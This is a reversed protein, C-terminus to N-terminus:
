RKRQKARFMVNWITAAHTQGNLTGRRFQISYTDTGATTRTDQTAWMAVNQAGNTATTMTAIQGVVTTGRLVRILVNQTGAASFQFSTNFEAIFGAKRQFVLQAATQWTTDPLQLRNQRWVTVVSNVADGGLDPTDILVGPARVTASWSTWVTERPGVLRARAQYRQGPLIGQTLIHLGDAIDSTSGTWFVQQTQAERVQMLVSRVGPLNPLWTLRLAPRRDTSNGDKISIGRVAFGPVTQASPEVPEVSPADDALEDGVTWSYDAPDVERIDLATSLSKTDITVTGIEFQKTSYGNRASTWEIVDLPKLVIGEPPLVITHRRHRKADRMWARTLQQVQKSNTVAALALNAVLEQGDAAIADEDRRPTAEVVSWLKSPNVWTAKIVNYSDQAGPFPDLQTPQSVLIDDDTIFRVPLTPAGVRIYVTGGVDTVEASCARKLEDVVDAPSQGGADSGGVFVEYGATYTKRDGVMVDCANMAAAWTAYPLDSAAYGGGYVDGGPFVIGRYLNYIMVVPNETWEYTSTDGYRHSGSGGATSDKRPDYLKIGRVVFKVDPSGQWVQPSDCWLFTMAAYAVDRGIMQATWPRQPYSGYVTRLMQSADTQSGDYFLCWVYDTFKPRTVTLGYFSPAGTALECPKGNIILSDLGTIRIDSFDIVRTLYRTDGDLGHSMEPATLNGATVYRGLIFSAPTQEGATLSQLTIGSPRQNANAPGSLASSLASFALGVGIRIFAAATVGVTIGIAQLGGIILTAPDAAAPTAVLTLALAVWLLKM